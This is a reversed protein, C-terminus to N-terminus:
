RPTGLERDGIARKAKPLGEFLYPGLHAPLTAPHVLGGIEEVLQRLALLGLGLSRQLLDPHSLGLLIRERREIGEDLGPADQARIGVRDRATQWIRDLEHQLARVFTAPTGILSPIVIEAGYYPSCM